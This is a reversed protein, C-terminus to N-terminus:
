ADESEIVVKMTEPKGYDIWRANDIIVTPEGKRWNGFRQVVQGPKHKSRKLSFELSPAVNKWEM